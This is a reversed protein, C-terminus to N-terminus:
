TDKKKFAIKLKKNGNLKNTVMELMQDYGNQIFLPMHDLFDPLKQVSLGLIFGGLIPLIDTYRIFMGTLMGSFFSWSNHSM